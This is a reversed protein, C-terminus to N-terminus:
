GAPFECSITSQNVQSKMEYAGTIVDTVQSIWGDQGRVSTQEAELLFLSEVDLGRIRSQDKEHCCGSSVKLGTM